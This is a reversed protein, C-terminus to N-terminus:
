CNSKCSEVFLNSGSFDWNVSVRKDNVSEIFLESSIRILVFDESVMISVVSVVASVVSVMASDISVMASVVLAIPSVVSVM